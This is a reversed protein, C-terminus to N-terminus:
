LALRGAALVALAAACVPLAAAAINGASVTPAGGTGGAPTTQINSATDRYLMLDAMKLTGAGQNVIIESGGPTCTQVQTSTTADQTGTCTPEPVSLSVTGAWPMGGRGDDATANTATANAGKPIRSNGGALAVFQIRYCRYAATGKVVFTKKQMRAEFSIATQVDVDRWATPAGAPAATAATASDCPVSDGGAPNSGQLIWHAPDHMPDHSSSTVSYAAVAFPQAYSFTVATRGYNLASTLLHRRRRGSVSADAATVLPTSWMSDASDDSVAALGTANGNQVSVSTPDPAHFRCLSNTAATGTATTHYRPLCGGCDTTSVCGARNFSVCAMNCREEFRCFQGSFGADCACKGEATCQGVSNCSVPNFSVPSCDGGVFNSAGAASRSQCTGQYCINDANADTGCPTGDQVAYQSDSSPHAMCNAYTYTVPGTLRNGGVNCTYGSPCEYAAAFNGWEVNTCQLMGCGMDCQVPYAASATVGLKANHTATPTHLWSGTYREFATTCQADRSMCAGRYCKGGAAGGNTNGASSCVKGEPQLVTAPCAASSGTCTTDLVCENTRARCLTGSSKFRGTSTDCCEGSSCQAGARTRCSSTCSPSGGPGQDCEETGSVIWDGCVPGGYPTRPTNAFCNTGDDKKSQLASAISSKSCPSWQKYGRDEWPCGASMCGSAAMIFASSDCPDGSPDSDHSSGLNHGLEHALTEVTFQWMTGYHDEDVGASYRSSCAANTYAVGAKGGSLDEGILLHHVDATYDVAQGDATTQPGNNSVRWSAVEGLATDLDRPAGASARAGLGANVMEQETTFIHLHVLTLSIGLKDTVGNISVEDLKSLLGDTAQAMKLVRAQVVALKDSVTSGAANEYMKFDAMLMLELNYAPQSTHPTSAATAAKCCTSDDCAGTSCTTEGPKDIRVTSATVCTHTSCTPLATCCLSSTCSPRAPLAPVAPM